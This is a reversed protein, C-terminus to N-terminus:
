TKKAVVICLNPKLKKRRFFPVLVKKIAYWKEFAYLLNKEVIEFGSIELESNLLEPTYERVHANFNRGKSILKKLNENLPVSVVFYGNKKLVMHVQKLAPLLKSPSIHELVDLAAVSNFSNKLFPIKTISGIKFNGKIEKRLKEVSTISTDIGFLSLDTCKYLQRELYGSGFGIDLFKGKTGKLFRSAIRIKDLYIPSSELLNEENINKADWLKSTNLNKIQPVSKKYLKKLETYNKETALKKRLREVEFADMSKINM